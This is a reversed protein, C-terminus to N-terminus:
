RGVTHDCDSFDASLTWLNSLRALVEGGWWANGKEDGVGCRWLV